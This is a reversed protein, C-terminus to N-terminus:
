IKVQKYLVDFKGIGSVCQWAQKACPGKKTPFLRQNKASRSTYKNGKLYHSSWHEDGTCKGKEKQEVRISRKRQDEGSYGYQQM